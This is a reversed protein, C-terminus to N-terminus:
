QLFWCFLIVLKLLGFFFCLKEFSFYFQVFHCQSQFLIWMIAKEPFYKGKRRTRRSRPGKSRSCPFFLCHNWRTSKGHFVNVQEAVQYKILHCVTGNDKWNNKLFQLIKITANINFKITSCTFHVINGAFVNPVM